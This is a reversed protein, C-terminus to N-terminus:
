IQIDTVKQGDAKYGRGGQNPDGTTVTPHDELSDDMLFEWQVVMKQKKEWCKEPTFVIYYCYVDDDIM